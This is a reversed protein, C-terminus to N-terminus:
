RYDHAPTDGAGGRTTPRVTTKTAYDSSNRLILWTGTSARWVVPELKGDADYDVPSPVDTSAGFQVTSRSSPAFGLSSRLVYWTGNGPRWVALDSKADGDFDGPVLVDRAGASGWQVSLANAPAYGKSSLLIKWYGTAPRWV